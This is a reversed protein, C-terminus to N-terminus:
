KELEKRGLLGVQAGYQQIVSAGNQVGWKLATEFDQGQALAGVFGASFADGAGTTDVPNKVPVAKESKLSHGDYAVAGRAGQTIVVTKPGWSAIEKSLDQPGLPLEKSKSLVLEIAEDLSLIIIELSKFIGKLGAYGAELQLAGPNLVLKIKKERALSAAGELLEQWQGSLSSVYLWRTKFKKQGLSLNHSANKNVFIIHDGDGKEDVIVVSIDTKEEEDWSILGASVKAERLRKKIRVGETDRGLNVRAAVRVGLLALGIAVNCGGGGFNDYVRDVLIKAGYEFGLVKQILPDKPTAIVKGARTRIVIDRTASGVTVVDYM